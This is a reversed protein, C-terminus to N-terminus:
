CIRLSNPFHIRSASFDHHHAVFPLTVLDDVMIAIRILPDLDADKADKQAHCLQM